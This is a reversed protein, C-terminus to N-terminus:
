SGFPFREHPRDTTRFIIIKKGPTFGLSSFAYKTIRPEFKPQPNLLTVWVKKYLHLDEPISRRTTDYLNFSKEDGQDFCYADRYRRDTEVLRRPAADWFVTMKM